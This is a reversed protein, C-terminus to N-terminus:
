IIVILYMHFCIYSSHFAFLLYTVISYLVLYKLIKNHRSFFAPYQCVKCGVASHQPDCHIGQLLFEVDVFQRKFAKDLRFCALSADLFVYMILWWQISFRFFCYFNDTNNVQQIFKHVRSNM